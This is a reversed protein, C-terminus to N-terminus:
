YIKTSMHCSVHKILKNQQFCGPLIKYKPEGQQIGWRPNRLPKESFCEHLLSDKVGFYLKALFLFGKLFSAQTQVVGLLKLEGLVSIDPPSMKLFKRQCFAPNLHRQPRSLVCWSSWNIKWFVVALIINTPWLLLHTANLLYMYSKTSLFFLTFWKTISSIGIM